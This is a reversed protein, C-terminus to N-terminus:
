TKILNRVIWEEAGHIPRGCPKVYNRFGSERLTRLIAPTMLPKSRDAADHLLVGGAFTYPADKPVGHLRFASLAIRALDGAADSFIKRAVEDGADAARECERCFDAVSRATERGRYIGYVSGRFTDSPYKELLYGTLATKPGRGERDAIVANIAARGIAFGSGPDGLIAGYGGVIHHEGNKIVYVDAGTGSLILVGDGYIGAAYLGLTGEDVETVPCGALREFVENNHMLYGALAVPEFDGLEERLMGLAKGVTKEIEEASNIKKNVGGDVRVAFLVRGAPSLAAMELKTGGGDAAIYVREM